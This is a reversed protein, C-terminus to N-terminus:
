TWGHFKNLQGRNVFEELILQTYFKAILWTGKQQDPSSNDKKNHDSNWIKIVKNMMYWCNALHLLLIFNTLPTSHPLPYQFLLKFWSQMVYKNVFRSPETIKEASLFVQKRLDINYSFNGIQHYQFIKFKNFIKITNLLLM